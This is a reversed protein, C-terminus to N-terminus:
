LVQCCPDTFTYSAGGNGSVQMQAESVRVTEIQMNVNSVNDARILRYEFADIGSIDDEASVIVKVPANYYNYAEGAM